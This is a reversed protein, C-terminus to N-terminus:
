HCRMDANKLLAAKKMKRHMSKVLSYSLLDTDLERPSAHTKMNHQMSLGLSRVRLDTRALSVPLRKYLKEKLQKRKMDSSVITNCKQLILSKKGFGKSVVFNLNANQPVKLEVCLLKLLTNSLVFVQLLNRNDASVETYYQM